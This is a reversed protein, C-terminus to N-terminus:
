PSRTRGVGSPTGLAATSRQELSAGSIALSGPQVGQGHRSFSGVARNEGLDDATFISTEPPNPPAGALASLIQLLLLRLWRILLSFNYGAAARVANAADGTHHALTNRGMWHEAKLHGIV